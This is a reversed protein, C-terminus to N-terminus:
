ANYTRASVYYINSLIDDGRIDILELFSDVVALDFQAGAQAKLENLVEVLSFSERYPRPTLMADFTNIVALIKAMQSIEEGELGHPYGKGDIREHHQLITMRVEKLTDVPSLIEEGILPHTKVLSYESESLSGAKNLIGSDVGIRGIDHLVASYELIELESDDLGIFKGLDRALIRVRESHGRRYGDNAEVANILSFITSFYNAKVEEYLWSNEIAAIAQNGLTYLIELEDTSFYIGGNRNELMIAGVIKGKLSLPVAMSTPYESDDGEKILPRGADLLEAYLSKYEVSIDHVKKIGGDRLYQFTLTDDRDKNLYLVGEEADFLEAINKIISRVLEHFEVVSGLVRGVENITKLRGIMNTLKTNKSRVEKSLATIAKNASEVEKVKYQLQSNLEELKDKNELEAKVRSIEREKRINTHYLTDIDQIMSNFSSGIVGMEDRSDIPVRADWKGGEVDKITALLAKLPRIVYSGLAVSLLLAITIISLTTFLLLIRKVSLITRNHRSLDLGLEIIGNVANTSDHCSFCAKNNKIESYNYVIKDHLISSGLTRKGMTLFEKSRNGIEDIRNSKLISGDESLIRLRVIEGTKGVNQIISQVDETNGRSMADTISQEILDTIMGADELKSEILKEQQVKIILFTSASLAALVILSTLTIIKVKLNMVNNVMYFVAFIMGM